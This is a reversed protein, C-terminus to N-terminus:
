RGTAEGSALSVALARLRRLRVGHDVGIRRGLAAEAPGGSVAQALTELRHDAWPRRRPWARPSARRRPGDEVMPDTQPPAPQSGSVFRVGLHTRLMAFLDEARVPKQLYDACGATRAAERTDGFASATVAIVPIAATAAAEKLRRTAELGDLDGMKLDM